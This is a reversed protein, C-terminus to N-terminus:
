DIQFHRSRIVVLDGWWASKVAGGRKLRMTDLGVARAKIKMDHVDGGSGEDPTRDRPFRGKAM